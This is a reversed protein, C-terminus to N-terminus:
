QAKRIADVLEDKSMGSRGSIGLEKAQEYLESKSREALDARAPSARGSRARGRGGGGARDESGALSRKLVEMLDIIEAQEVEPASPAAFVDAGAELKARVLALLREAYPDALLERELTDGALPRMENEIARRAEDEPAELAPLGVDAPTRLEDQFRLTEARLIGQEAIIAVLYEKGRMVFTAIGARGAEEMTLALLRYAKTADRDPALFYAREFYIPDIEALEVFRTLDIAQSKKPALAELEEDEVLVFEDKEIEYGRVIDEDALMREDAPCLYRRALPTGEADVMRLSVRSARNAVYLSVPISVLGFAITGSWFPRPVLSSSDDDDPM